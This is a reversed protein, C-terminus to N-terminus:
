FGAQETWVGSWGNSDFTAQIAIASNGVSVASLEHETTNWRLAVKRQTQVFQDISQRFSEASLNSRFGIVQGTQMNDVAFTLELGPPLEFSTPEAGGSSVNRCITVAWLRRPETGPAASGTATEPEPIPVNPATAEDAGSDRPELNEVPGPLALAWAVVRAPQTSTPKTAALALPIPGEQWYVMGGASEWQPPRRLLSELLKASGDTEFGVLSEPHDLLKALRGIVAQRVQLRTGDIEERSWSGNGRGLTWHTAADDVAPTMPTAFPEGGDTFHWSKVAQWGFTLAILLVIASALLNNTWGM